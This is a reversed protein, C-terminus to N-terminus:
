KPRRAEFIMFLPMLQEMSFIQQLAAFHPALNSGVTETLGGFLVLASERQEPSASVSLGHLFDLLNPWQGVPLTVKAVTAIVEALARRVSADGEGALAQLLSAQMAPKTEAPLKAWHGAIRKRLLM